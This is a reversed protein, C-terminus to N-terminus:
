YSNCVVQSGIRNCYTTTPSAVQPTYNQNSQQIQAFRANIIGGMQMCESQSVYRVPSNAIAEDLKTPNIINMSHINQLVIRGKGYTDSDIYSNQFCQNLDSAMAGYKQYQAPTTICGSLAFLIPTIFAIKKMLITLYILNNM